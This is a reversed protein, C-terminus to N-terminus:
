FLKDLAEQASDSFDDALGADPDIEPESTLFENLRKVTEQSYFRVLGLNTRGDFLVAMVTRASVIQLQISDRQGQHSMVSFNEEGLLRAVERTAAFSGAILAAISDDSSESPEGRRTVPHGDLDILMVSRAHSLELFADLESDLREIDKQYFVMREARLQEDKINM